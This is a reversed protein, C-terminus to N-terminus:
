TIWILIYKKCRVGLAFRLLSFLWFLVLGLLLGLGVVRSSFFRSSGCLGVRGCIGYPSGRWQVKNLFYIIIPAGWPCAPVHCHVCVSSSLVGCVCAFCLLPLLNMTELDSNAICSSPRWACVCVCVLLCGSSSKHRMPGVVSRIVPYALKVCSHMIRTSCLLFLAPKVYSLM